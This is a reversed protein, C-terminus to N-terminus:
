TDACCPDAGIHTTRDSYVLSYPTLSGFPNANEECAFEKKIRSPLALTVKTVISSSGAPFRTTASTCPSGKFAANSARLPLRNTNLGPFESNALILASLLPNGFTAPDDVRKATWASPM